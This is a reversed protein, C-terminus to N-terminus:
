DGGTLQTPPPPLTKKLAGERPRNVADEENLVGETLCVPCPTTWGVAAADNLFGMGECNPCPVKKTTKDAMNGMIIGAISFNTTRLNIVAM